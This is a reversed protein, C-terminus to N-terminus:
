GIIYKSYPVFSLIKVVICSIFLNVIAFLINIILLSLDSFTNFDLINEITPYILFVVVMHFLYIGFSYKAVITIIQKYFDGIRDIRALLLLAVATLSVPLPSLYESLQVTTMQLKFFGIYLMGVIALAIVLIIASVKGFGLNSIKEIVNYRRLYYGSIYYGIYGSCYYLVYFVSYRNLPKDVVILLFSFLINLLWLVIYFEFLQKSCKMFFPSVIPTIIYLALIAYVFWLHASYANLFSLSFFGDFYFNIFQYVVCWVMFPPVIRLFRKKLFEKPTYKTSINLYGSIIFFLPVGCKGIFWLVKDMIPSIM